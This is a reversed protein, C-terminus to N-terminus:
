LKTCFNKQKVIEGIENKFHFHPILTNVYIRNVEEKFRNEQFIEKVLIM